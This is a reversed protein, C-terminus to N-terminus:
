NLQFYIVPLTALYTATVTPNSLPAANSSDVWIATATNAVTPITQSPANMFPLRYALVSSAGPSFATSTAASVSWCYWGVSLTVTSSLSGTPYTASTAVSLATSTSAILTTPAATTSSLNSIGIKATNGAGGSYIYLGVTTISMPTSCYWPIYWTKPGALSTNSTSTTTSRNDYWFGSRYVQSAGSRFSTWSTDGDTGSNKVLVQGPTGSGPLAGSPPFSSSGVFAM